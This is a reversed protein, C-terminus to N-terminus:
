GVNPVMPVVVEMVWSVCAVLVGFYAVGLWWFPYPESSEVWLVYLWVVHEILFFMTMSACYWIIKLMNESVFVRGSVFYMTVLVVLHSAVSGCGIWLLTTYLLGDDNHRRRGHAGARIVDDYHHSHHPRSLAQM